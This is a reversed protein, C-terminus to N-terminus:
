DLDSLTQISDTFLSDLSQLDEQTEVPGVVTKGITAPQTLTQQAKVKVPQSTAPLDTQDIGSLQRLWDTSIMRGLGSDSESDNRDVCDVMDGNNIPSDSTVPSTSDASAATDSPAIVDREEATAADSWLDIANVTRRQGPQLVGAMLSDPTAQGDLDSLGLVHGMEHTLVTLLDMTGEPVTESMSDVYWGYGLADDDLVIRSSGTLGLAGEDDLNGIEITSSTLRSLQEATLGASTWNAIALAKFEDVLEPTLTSGVQTVQQMRQQSADDMGNEDFRLGDLIQPAATPLGGVAAIELGNAFWYGTFGTPNRFVVDLAGGSVSVTTFELTTFVNAGLSATALSTTGELQVELRSATTLHGAYIRVAYNGDPLTYRFTASANKGAVSDRYLNVTSRSYGATTTLQNELVAATFGYPVTGGVKYITSGRVHTFGTAVYGSSGGFDLRAIASGGSSGGSTAIDQLNPTGSGATATPVAAAAYEIANGAGITGSATLAITSASVNVVVSAGDNNDVINGGSATVAVRGSTASLAGLLANGTTVTLSLAPSANSRTIVSGTSTQTYGTGAILAITSLGADLTTSVNLTTAATVAVTGSVMTAATDFVVASTTLALSGLATGSNGRITTTGTGASQVVAGSVRLTSGFSVDRATSITLTQLATTAGIAGTFSIDGAGAAITLSQLGNITAATLNGGATTISSTGALVLSGM